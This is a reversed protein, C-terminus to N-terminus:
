FNAFAYHHILSNAPPLLLKGATAPAELFQNGGGRWFLHAMAAQPSSCGSDIRRTLRVGTATEIRSLL